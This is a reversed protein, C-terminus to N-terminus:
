EPIIMVICKTHKVVFTAVSGIMKTLGRKTSKTIIIIDIDDDKAKKIIEEGAYGFSLYTKPSYEKMRESAIDLIRQGLQKANEFENIIMMGNMFVLEQVHMITLEVTDKPFIGKILELSKMSRESGDIPVLLKKMTFGVGEGKYSFIYKPM